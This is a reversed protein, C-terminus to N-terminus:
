RQVGSKLTLITLEPQVGIRVHPGVGGIGTNVYLYQPHTSTTATESYLGSWEAYKWQAPSWSGIQFQVAHTHGALMLDIDSSPLVERRWHTPNHSLLIKAYDFTTLSDGTTLAKNLDGYTSFPPEGINEVGVLMISEVATTDTQSPRNLLVHENCLLNWGAETQLSCLQNVDNLKERNSMHTYDAYDHNGLVSYVPIFGQGDHRDIHALRYLINKSALAESSQITVMDGTFVILDPQEAKVADVVRQLFDQGEADQFWDLHMDSLQAIRYGEFSKPWHESPVDIHTVNIQYRTHYTGILSSVILTFIIIGLICWHIMWAVHRSVFIRSCWYIIQGFLLFVLLIIVIITIYFFIRM